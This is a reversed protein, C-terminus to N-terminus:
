LRYDPFAPLESGWQICVKTFLPPFLTMVWIFTQRIEDPTTRKVGLAAQDMKSKRILLTVTKAFFNLAADSARLRVREICRLMWVVGYGYAWAVRNPVGKKHFKSEWVGM